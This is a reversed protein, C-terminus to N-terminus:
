QKRYKRLYIWGLLLFELTMCLYIGFLGALRGLLLTGGGTLLAAVATCVFVYREKGIGQLYTMLIQYPIRAFVIPFILFLCSTGAYIVTSDSVIWSLIHVRFLACVTCLVTLVVVALLCGSKLYDRVDKADGASHRQLAYTQAATAFAYVPLSLTSYVIDLLKYVAMQTPALRSVAATVFLVFVTSELLEQGLLSPYLHLIQKFCCRMLAATQRFGPHKRKQGTLRAQRIYALQYILLGGMLGAVSGWAAGSIGLSPFGFAGYVLAYDFFLNIGTSVATVAVVIKTQFLNRFYAAYLFLLMNQLVTVSAPYFYRLLETLERGSLHYLKQFFFRGAFLSLLLFLVGIILTLVKCSLFIAEFSATDDQGKKEAAMIHFAASLIGLAGTVSYLIGGAIGVLAFGRSSYHGVIAEDLITFISSLLYNLLIPYAMKLINKTKTHNNM